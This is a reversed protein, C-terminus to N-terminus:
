TSGGVLFAGADGGRRILLLAGKKGRLQSGSSANDEKIDIDADKVIDRQSERERRFGTRQFM